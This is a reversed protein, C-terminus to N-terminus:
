AFDDVLNLLNPGAHVKVVHFQSRNVCDLAQRTPCLVFELQPVSDDAQLVHQPIQLVPLCEQSTREHLSRM